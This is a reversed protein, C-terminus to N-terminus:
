LSMALLLILIVAVIAGGTAFTLARFFAGFILLLVLAIILVALPSYM